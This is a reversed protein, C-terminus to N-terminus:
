AYRRTNQFPQFIDLLDCNACSPRIMIKNVNFVMFPRLLPLPCSKVQTLRFILSILTFPKIWTISFAGKDQRAYNLILQSPLLSCSSYVLLFRQNAIPNWKHYFTTEVMRRNIVCCRKSPFSNADGVKSHCHRSM